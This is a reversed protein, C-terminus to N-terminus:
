AARGVEDLGKIDRSMEELTRYKAEGPVPELSLQEDTNTIYAHARPQAARGSFMCAHLSKESGTYLGFPAKADWAFCADKFLLGPKTRWCGLVLWWVATGREGAGM